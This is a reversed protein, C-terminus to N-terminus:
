SVTDAARRRRPGPRPARGQATNSEECPSADSGAELTPLRPEVRNRGANKARYLAADARSIAADLTEEGTLM